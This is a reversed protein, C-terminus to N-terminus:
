RDVPESWSCPFTKFVKQDITTALKVHVHYDNHLLFSLKVITGREQLLPEQRGEVTLSIQVQRGLLARATEKKSCKMSFCIGSRSLDVVAGKFYSSTARGDRDLIVATALATLPYRPHTRRELNKQKVAEEARGVRHSWDRLKDFLGPQDDPWGASDTRSLHRFSVESRTVASFTCFSIGFFTDEGLISGRGVTALAVNKAATRFFLTVEGEEVFFLRNNPKGQFFIVKGSPIRDQKLRYYLTNTEEESLEDYLDQWLALHESDLRKTKEEEIYEGTSVILNIAGPHARLLQERLADAEAFAGAAALSRIRQALADGSSDPGWANETTM